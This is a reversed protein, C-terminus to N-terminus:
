KGDAMRQIEELIEKWDNCRIINEHVVNKNWSKDLLLVKLSNNACDLANTKDDDILIDVDFKRCVFSKRKLPYDQTYYIESKFGQLHAQLFRKTKERLDYSRSTIFVLEYENNLYSFIEQFDELFKLNYAHGEDIFRKLASIVEEKSNLSAFFDLGIQTEKLDAGYEKNCFDAFVSYFKLITDDIDVAIKM